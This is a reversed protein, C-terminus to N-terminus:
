KLARLFRHRLLTRSVEDVNLGAILESVDAGPGFSAQIQAVAASYSLFDTRRLPIKAGGFPTVPAKPLVEEPAPASALLAPMRRRARRAAREADRRERDEREAQLGVEGPGIYVNRCKGDEWVKRVYYRRGGPRRTEWAM